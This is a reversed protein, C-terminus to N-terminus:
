NSFARRLGDTERENKRGMGTKFIGDKGEVPYEKVGKWEDGELALTMSQSSAQHAAIYLMLAFVIKWFNM